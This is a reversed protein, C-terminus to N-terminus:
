NNLINELDSRTKKELKKKEQCDTYLINVGKILLSSLLYM